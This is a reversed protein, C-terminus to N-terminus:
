RGAKIDGYARKVQELYHPNGGGNYDHVARDWGKFTTARGRGDYHYAKSELWDIGARIGLDPGPAVGRKLGIEAKYDDWDGRNNVQMPDHAHARRNFASEVRIMARILDPDLYVDDGPDAENKKNFAAVKAQVVPDLDSPYRPRSVPGAVEFADAPDAAPGEGAIGAARPAFVSGSRRVGGSLEPYNEAMFRAHGSGFLGGGGGGGFCGGRRAIDARAASIPDESASPAGGLGALVRLLTGFPTAPSAGRRAVFDEM